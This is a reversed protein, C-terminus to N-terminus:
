CLIRTLPAEKFLRETYNIGPYTKYISFMASRLRQFTKHNIERYGNEKHSNLFEILSKAYHGMCSNNSFDHDFRASHYKDPEKCIHIKVRELQTFASVRDGDIYSNNNEEWAEITCNYWSSNSENKVFFFLDM